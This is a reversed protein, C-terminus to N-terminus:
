NKGFISHEIAACITHCVLEHIEQIRPTVSSPVKLIIDCADNMKGGSQGTMGVTIMNLKKAQELAKLINPSNGSTSLGIFMDGNQGHAAVQREFLMDYGYDNGIATMISTDTTLAIAPLAPRDFFFRSVLEGAFHQADAASGGNGAILIKKNQRYVETASECIKMLADLAGKDALFTQQAQQADQLQNMIFDDINAM